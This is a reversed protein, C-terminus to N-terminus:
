TLAAENLGYPSRCLTLFPVANERHSGTNELTHAQHRLVLGPSLTERVFPAKCFSQDALLQFSSALAIQSNKSLFVHWHMYSLVGSKM